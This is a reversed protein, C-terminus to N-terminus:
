AMNIRQKKYAVKGSDYIGNRVKNMDYGADALAMHVGIEGRKAIFKVAKGSPASLDSVKSTMLEALKRNYEIAYTKSIEGSKLQKKYKPDLENKTYQSMEKKSAKYAKNYIRDYNKKAWKTDKKELRKRGAETLSGDANQYRRVGWKQGLIGHHQLYNNDM